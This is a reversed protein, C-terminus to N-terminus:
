TSDLGRMTSPRGVTMRNLCCSSLRLTKPGLGGWEEDTIRRPTGTVEFEYHSLVPGACIFRNTGNDVALMLLDVHGVAEHLVSGPDPPILSPVDTHVDVVLADFGGSALNEHFDLDDTWYITRYFLSPYWGSYSTPGVCGILQVAEREMLSNVFSEDESTFPEPALEKQSLSELRAVITAFNQLHSVQRSQIDTLSVINTQPGESPHKIPSPQNTVVAYSGQYTLAAIHDATRTAMRRLRNWFEIRPEVFGKPYICPAVDAYSQKTYLVADHRLQTWSALQTNVTKMAWARTRMAEPYSPDTTPSSLERLCALWSMYIDAGWAETTQQDMMTRVAALNHQYPLGDRFQRAHPRNPDEYTGKMQAILEPVVQNNGLVSFAVDLAGSVRRPVKNTAGNEAWLVSSFVTQSLAWSDPAFKQGFVTFTRPLAYRAAGGMPQDFWDSRLNQVGLEGSLIDTQVRELTAFDPVDSLSHIRAGALLGGLQGFTLSDTPGLFTEITRDAERWADFQGSSNLLHWLVVAVGLERPSAMREEGPCRQWPGGAVPLDIRDLWMRCQFYRALRDSHVYHGRVKFQSFDVMRCFGMFDKVEKLQEAQIDALTQAVRDDQDLTSSVVQNSGALLSRAVSLFYDADRLSNQLENIGIEVSAPGVQQAMGDLMTQLSGFLYTEETEELLADCTRHWAQLLADTSIFVPLHDHWLAYFIGAFSNKRPYPGTAGIRQSVVFGNRRFVARETSDLRTDYIRYGPEEWEKNQNVKELDANFQDWFQAATPDWSLGPLYVASNPFRAAFQELSIQGIRALEQAFADGYGLVEAGGLGLKAIAGAPVSLLRYFACPQDLEITVQLLQTTESAARLREGVPQWVLLDQSRQLEFWPRVIFGNAQQPSSPWVLNISAASREVSLRVSEEARSIDIMALTTAMVMLHTLDNMM